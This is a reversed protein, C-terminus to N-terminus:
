QGTVQYIASSFFPNELLGYQQRRFKTFISIMAVLADFNLSNSKSNCDSKLYPSTDMLRHYLVHHTARARERPIVAYCNSRCEPSTYKGQRGNKRMPKRGSSNGHSWKALRAKGEPIQFGPGFYRATKEM